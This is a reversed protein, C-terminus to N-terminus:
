SVDYFFVFGAGGSIAFPEGTARSHHRSSDRQSDSYSREAGAPKKGTWIPFSDAASSSPTPSRRREFSPAPMLWCPPSAWGFRSTWQRSTQRSSSTSSRDTGNTRSASRARISGSSTAPRFSTRRPLPCPYEQTRGNLCTYQRIDIGSAEFLTLPLIKVFGM